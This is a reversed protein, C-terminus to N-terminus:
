GQNDRYDTDRPFSDGSHWLKGRIQGHEKGIHWEQIAEFSGGAGTECGNFKLQRIVEGGGIDRLLQRLVIQM